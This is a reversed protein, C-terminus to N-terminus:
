KVFGSERLAKILAQSTKPVADGSAHRDVYEFEWQREFNGADLLVAEVEVERPIGSSLTVRKATIVLAHSVGSASHRLSIEQRLNSGFSPLRTTSTDNGAENLRTSVQTLLGQAIFQLEVGGAMGKDTGVYVAPPALVIISKCLAPAATKTRTSIAPPAACSALAALSCLMLPGLPARFSSTMILPNSPLQKISGCLTNALVKGQYRLKGWPRLRALGQTFLNVL